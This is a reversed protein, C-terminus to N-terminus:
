DPQTGPPKELTLDLHDAIAHLIARNELLIDRNEREIEIIRDLSTASSDQEARKLRVDAM